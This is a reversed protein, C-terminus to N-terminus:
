RRCSLRLKKKVCLLTLLNQFKALSQELPPGGAASVAHPSVDSGCSRPQAAASAAPLCQRCFTTSSLYPNAPVILIFCHGFSRSTQYQDGNERKARRVRVLASISELDGQVRRFRGEGCLPAPLGSFLSSLAFPKDPKAQPRPTAPPAACLATMTM